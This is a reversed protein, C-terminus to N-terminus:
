IVYIEGSTPIVVLYSMKNEFFFSNCVVTHNVRYNSGVYIKSENLLMQGHFGLYTITVTDSSNMPTFLDRMKQYSDSDKILYKLDLEADLYGDHYGEEYICDTCPEDTTAPAPGFFVLILIFITALLIVIVAKQIETM